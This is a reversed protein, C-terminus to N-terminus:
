LASDLFNLTPLILHDSRGGASECSNSSNTVLIVLLLLAVVDVVIVIIVRHHVSLIAFPNDSGPSVIALEAVVPVGVCSSLLLSVVKCVGVCVGKIGGSSALCGAHHHVGIIIILVGNRDPILGGM